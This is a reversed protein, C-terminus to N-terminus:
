YRSSHGKNKLVAEIRRPMSDVLRKCEDVSFNHQWIDCIKEELQELSSPRTAAVRKKLVLWANEIPNLDPSQGPWDLTRVGVTSLWEKVCKARHCPAGDQQLIDCNLRQMVPQLKEQLVGLYSQGNMTTNRPMFWLDGPGSASIGGWVMVSLSQRVTPIVYQVKYRCNAPRRIYQQYRKFQYFASEDTFLVRRWMESTWHRYKKCFALRDRVNKKSLSPKKAPTCAKLHFEDHLRRRISRASITSPIEASIERSSWTPHQMSIRRIMIDDRPSTVRPRGSRTASAFSNSSRFKQLTLSVVQQSVHLRSSIAAQKMGTSSLAVIQARTTESLEPNRPM